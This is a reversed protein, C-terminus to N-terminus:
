GRAKGAMARTDDIALQLLRAEAQLLGRIWPDPDAPAFARFNADTAVTIMREIGTLLVTAMSHAPSREPAASISSDMQEVLLEIIIRSSDVRNKRMRDDNNDAYANRLHLIRANRVWFAYYAQVFRLCREGLDEDPWRERMSAIYTQEGTAMIPALVALLLEPLDSFYLYLTTMGLSAERAVASLSIPTGPPEALLKETAAIIRDRTDRGKRGLRQGLLNHSLSEREATSPQARTM